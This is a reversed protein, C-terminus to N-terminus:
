YISPYDDHKIFEMHGDFFVYNRGGWPTRVADGVSNALGGTTSSSYNEGDANTIMWIHSLPEQDKGKTANQAPDVNAKLEVVRHPQYTTAGATSSRNGFFYGPLSSKGSNVVYAVGTENAGYSVPTKWIGDTGECYGADILVTSLYYTRKSSDTVASPIAIGRNIRGPLINDHDGAYAFVLKAQQQLNNADKTKTASEKIKGMAPFSLAVLVGIIAVTILIEVLSFGGRNQRLSNIWRTKM